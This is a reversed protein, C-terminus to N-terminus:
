FNQKLPDYTTLDRQNRWPEQLAIIDIQFINELDEFLPIMVVERSKRTHYQLITLSQKDCM